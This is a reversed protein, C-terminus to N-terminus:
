PNSDNHQSRSRSQKKLTRRRSRFTNGIKGIAAEDPVERWRGDQDRQLFRGGSNHVSCLVRMFIDRRRLRDDIADYAEFFAEVYSLYKANGKHSKSFSDMGYVVDCPGPEASSLKEVGTTSIPRHAKRSQELARRSRVFENHFTLDFDGTKTLPLCQAPVGLTGLTVHLDKAYDDAADLRHLQLRALMHKDFTENHERNFEFNDKNVFIHSSAMRAPCSGTIASMKM